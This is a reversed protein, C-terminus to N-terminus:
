PTDSTRLWDRVSTWRPIILFCEDAAGIAEFEGSLYFYGVLASTLADLEDHSKRGKIEFGFEELGRHLLQINAGKRPIGLVDQAAGPYSEIVEVGAARFRRALDIGRATLAQMHRILAPYVGIRRSWLVREADRVIGGAARCPSEDSVSVRGRPLALPADISVLSPNSELTCAVIEEDDSLIRTETHSGSCSAWGTPNKPNGRLDIGIIVPVPSPRAFKPILDDVHPRRTLWARRVSSYKPRPSARRSRLGRAPIRLSQESLHALERCLLPALRPLMEVDARNYALLKQHARREGYIARCWLTVAEAGDIDRVSDSRRLGFHAEAAKQGGKIKLGRALDLLDIHATPFRIGPFHEGMFPLDFRRGNFTVLVRANELIEALGAIDEPWAWQYFLGNFFAGIVTVQNHHRSLGTTEIDLYCAGELSPALVRWHAAPPLRDIFFGFDMEALARTSAAELELWTRAIPSLDRRPRPLPLDLQTPLAVRGLRRPPLGAELLAALQPWSRLGNRWFRQETRPGVGPFHLFTQELM